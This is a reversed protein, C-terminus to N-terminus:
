NIGSLVDTAMPDSAGSCHAPGLLTGEGCGLRRTEVSPEPRHRPSRTHWPQPVPAIRAKEEQERVRRRRLLQEAPPSRSLRRLGLAHRITQLLDQEDVPKEFYAVAKSQAARQRVQVDDRGTIIIVPLSPTTAVVHDLLELGTM